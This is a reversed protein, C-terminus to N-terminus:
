KESLLKRTHLKLMRVFHEVQEFEDLEASESASLHGDKNAQLLARIRAQTAESPRFALIQEPTPSSALFYYVDQYIPPEAVAM